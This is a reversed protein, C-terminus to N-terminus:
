AATVTLKLGLAKLVKLLTDLSPNGNTSLSRYLGERALGTEKALEAMGRSRAIVGLVQAIFAPDDGAEEMAAELFSAIEAKTNLYDATDYRSWTVKRAPKRKTAM